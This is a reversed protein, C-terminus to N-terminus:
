IQFKNNKKELKKNKIIQECQKRFYSKAHFRKTNVGNNDMRTTEYINYRCCLALGLRGLRCHVLPAGRVAQVPVGCAWDPPPARGLM